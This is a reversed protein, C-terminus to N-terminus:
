VVLPVSASWTTGAGYSGSVHLTVQQVAAATLVVETLVQERAAISGISVPLVAPSMVVGNEATIAVIQADQVTSGTNNALALTALIQGAGDANAVASNVFVGPVHPATCVTLKQPASAGGGTDATISVTYPMGATLSGASLSQSLELTNARSTHVVTSGRMCTLTARAPVHTDWTASIATERSRGVRVNEIRPAGLLAEAHQGTMTGYEWVFVPAGYTRMAAMLELTDPLPFLHDPTYICELDISPCIPFFPGLVQNCEDKGWDLAAKVGGTHYRRYVGIYWQPSYADAWAAMEAYPFGVAAKGFRTIPDGYGTVIVPKDSLARYIRGFEAMEAGKYGQPLDKEKAGWEDEMDIVAIGTVNAMEAAMQADGVRTEPITYLFPVFGLGVARAAEAWGLLQAQGTYWTMTYGGIKPCVFDFGWSRIRALVFRRADESWDLWENGIYVGVGQLVSTVAAMGRPVTGREVVPDFPYLKTESAIAPLLTGAAVGAIGVQIMQRRTLNVM